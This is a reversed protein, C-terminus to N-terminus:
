GAGNTQLMILNVERSPASAAAVVNSDSKGGEILMVTWPPPTTAKGEAMITLSQSPEWVVDTATQENTDLAVEPSKQSAEGHNLLRKTRISM